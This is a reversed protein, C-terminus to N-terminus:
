YRFLAAVDADGPMQSKSLAYIQGSNTLTDVAIRDLLECHSFTDDAGLRLVRPSGPSAQEWCSPNATLMVTDVRGHAAAEAVEAPETSARGTAQLAGFREKVREKDGQLRDAIVPWAAAHLEEPSLQDPNRRVEDDQVHPYSSVDRYISITEDLGMLVLPLDQGALYSDLGDAVQRLFRQVEDRKFHEDAAGHGYFVAPGGRGALSTAFAMTDSRPEPPTVVDRLSTPIDPLVVEEVRHRTGELLRVRRQSVALLLFHEDTLIPLLPGIVFHDGVASLEPVDIPLRFTRRWGPRLFMALGDSMYQWAERDRQLASAPELFEAIDPGRMGRDVLATEVEALANKWRIQDAEVGSGFRHTPMFMTLHAGEHDRRAMETLDAGTLLDMDAMGDNHAGPRLDTM